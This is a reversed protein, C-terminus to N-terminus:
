TCPFVGGSCNRYYIEPERSGALDGNLVGGVVGVIKAPAGAPGSAILKGIPDEEPFYRRQLEEDIVAVPLAGARDTSTFTRGRLLPIRMAEFYGPLVPSIQAEPHEQPFQLRGPFRLGDTWIGSPNFPIFGGSAVEIGPLAALRALLPEYFATNWSQDATYDSRALDLAGTWVRSPEFGPDVRTLSLFSRGLATGILLLAVALAIQLAVIGSSYGSGRTATRTAGGRLSKDLSIHTSFLAPVLGACLTSAVTLTLCFLLVQVHISAHQALPGHSNILHLSEGAFLLGLLCGAFVLVGTDTLMQRALRPKTAGLAMRVAVETSRSAARIVLLGSVNVCAILWVVFVAGLALYVWRRVAATKEEALPRAVFHWGSSRGYIAPFQSALGDSLQALASEAKQESGLALRAVM